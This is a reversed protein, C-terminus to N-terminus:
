HRVLALGKSVVRAEDIHSHRTSSLPKHHRCTPIAHERVPQQSELLTCSIVMTCHDRYSTETEQLDDGRGGDWSCPNQVSGPRRLAVTRDSGHIEVGSWRIAFGAAM